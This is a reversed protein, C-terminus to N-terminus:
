PDCAFTRFLLFGTGVTSGGSATPGKLMFTSQMLVVNLDVEQGFVGQALVLLLLCRIGHMTM